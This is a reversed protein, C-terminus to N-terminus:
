AIRGDPNGLNRVNFTAKIVSCISPDSYYPIGLKPYVKYSVGNPIGVISSIYNPKVPKNVTPPPVFRTPGFSPSTSSIPGYYTSPPLGLSASPNFSLAFPNDIPGPRTLPIIPTDDSDSIAEIYTRKRKSGLLPVKFPIPLGTNSDNVYLGLRLPLLA